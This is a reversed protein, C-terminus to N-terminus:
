NNDLGSRNRQLEAIQGQLMLIFQDRPDKEQQHNERMAQVTREHHQQLNRIIGRTHHAISNVAGTLGDDLRSAQQGLPVGSPGAQAGYNRGPALANPVFGPTASWSRNVAAPVSVARPTSGPVPGAAFGLNPFPSGPTPVAASGPVPLNAGNLLPNPAQTLGSSPVSRVNCTAPRASSVAASASAPRSVPGPACSVQPPASPPQANPRVPPAVSPNSSPVRLNRRTTPPRNQEPTKGHTDRLHADLEAKREFGSSCHRCPFEKDGGARALSRPSILMTSNFFIVYM